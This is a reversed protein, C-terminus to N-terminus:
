LNNGRILEVCMNVIQPKSNAIKQLRRLYKVVDSWAANDDVYLKHM